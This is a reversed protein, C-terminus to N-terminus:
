NAKVDLESEYRDLDSKLHRADEMDNQERLLELALRASRVADSPRGVKDYVRALEVLCKWDNGKSLEVAEQLPPVAGFFDGRSELVFGLNFRYEVSRPDVDIAKKLQEIAGEVDGNLELSIALHGLFKPNRPSDNASENQDHWIFTPPTIEPPFVSGNLPTTSPSHTLRTPSLRAPKPLTFGAPEAFSSFCAHASCRQL